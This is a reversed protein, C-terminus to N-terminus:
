GYNESRVLIGFGTAHLDASGVTLFRKDKLLTEMWYHSMQADIWIDDICIVGNRELFPYIAEIEAAVQEPTHVTDLHALGIGWDPWFRKALPPIDDPSNGCLLDVNNREASVSIADPRLIRDLGYVYGRPNGDALHAVGMGDKVGLEVMIEPKLWDALHYLLKHYPESPETKPYFGRLFLANDLKDDEIAWEIMKQLIALDMKRM